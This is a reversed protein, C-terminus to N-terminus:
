LSAANPSGKQLQIKQIIKTTSKEPLFPIIEVKGGYDEIYPTEPLTERTYDGGKVYISPKIKQILSIPTNEEFPIIYDVSNLGALVEIRDYLTNIPRNEGKIRKISEDSNIGVILIDGLSKATNLYSVHGPHLIDFCGNTFIIRKNNKDDRLFGELDKAYRLIKKHLSYSYRLEENTCFATTSKKTTISSARTALEAADQMNAGATLALLFASIYTDGAGAAKSDPQATTLTQYYEGNKNIVVSGETDLTVAVIDSKVKKIFDERHSIIGQMREGTPFGKSIGLLSLAETYNPKIATAPFDKYLEPFKADVVVIKQTHKQLRQISNKITETVTGYGYDSILIADVNSYLTTIKETIEEQEVQSLKLGNGTDFRILMHDKAIIRTKTMTTKESDIMISKTNIGYKQLNTLLSKGPIDNGVISIFIAEGGLTALNVAANAAGGPMEVLHNIDVIPVPAERCIRECSGFFYRDLMADGIVLVKCDKFNDIYNLYNNMFM